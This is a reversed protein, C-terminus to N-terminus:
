CLPHCYCRWGLVGPLSGEVGSLKGAPEKRLLHTCLLTPCRGQMGAPRASLFLIGSSMLFVPLLAPM